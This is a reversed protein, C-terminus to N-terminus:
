FHSGLSHQSVTLVGAYLFILHRGLSIDVFCIPTIHHEDHLQLRQLLFFVNFVDNFRLRNFQIM